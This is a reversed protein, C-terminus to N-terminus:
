FIFIEVGLRVGLGFSGLNVRENNLNVLYNGSDDKLDSSFTQILFGSLYTAASKGLQANYTGEFKVAGGSSSYNTENTIVKRTLNNFSYGGGLGFKIFSNPQSFIYNLMVIPQSSNYDYQYDSNSSVRITKLLYSYEPKVSFSKKVQIEVGGFFEIATSFNSIKQDNPIYIYNPVDTEIFKNLSPNNCYNLGMGFSISIYNHNKNQSQFSVNTSDAAKSIMSVFATLGALTIFFFINNCRKMLKNLSM